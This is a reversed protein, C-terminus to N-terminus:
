LTRGRLIRKPLDFARIMCSPEGGAGAVVTDSCEEKPRGDAGSRFAHLNALRWSRHACTMPQGRELGFVTVLGWNRREAVSM